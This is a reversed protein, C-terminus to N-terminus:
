AERTRAACGACLGVLELIQREVHFTLTSALKQVCQTLPSHHIEEVTGCAHCVTFYSHSADDGHDHCAIFAGLTEIRHVLGKEVLAELARYVTPPAKIGHRRLKDLLEYATMAKGSKQLLMLVKQSHPTLAPSSVM